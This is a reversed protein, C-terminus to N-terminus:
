RSHVRRLASSSPASVSSGHPSARTRTRVVDDALGAVPNSDALVLCVEWSSAVWTSSRTAFIPRQHRKVVVEQLPAVVVRDQGALGVQGAVGETRHVPPGGLPELREGVEPGLSPTTAQSCHAALPAAPDRVQDARQDAGRGARRHHPLVHGVQQAVQDAAEVPPALAVPDDRGLELPRARQVSHDCIWRQPPSATTTGPMSRSSSRLGHEVGDVLAGQDDLARVHQEAGRVRLSTCGSISLACSTPASATSRRSGPRRCRAPRRAPSQADVDVEPARHLVQGAPRAVAPHVDAVPQHELRDRGAPETLGLREVEVRRVVVGLADVPEHAASWANGGM